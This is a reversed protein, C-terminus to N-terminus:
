PDLEQSIQSAIGATFLAFLWLQRHSQCTTTSPTWSLALPLIVDIESYDHQFIGGKVDAPLEEESHLEGCDSDRHSFCKSENAKERMQFLSM